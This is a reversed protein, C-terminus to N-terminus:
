ALVANNEGMASLDDMLEFMSPYKVRIDESDVTTLTLGARSLLSAVDSVDVLCIKRLEYLTDGGFLAGLLVGDPKLARAIQILAGPLDNIWHLSLSSLIVDLSEPEFDLNEEDAVRRHVAVEYTKDSDRNLMRESVDTQIVEECIEQDLFKVIHGCGGGLDVVTKFRRKID